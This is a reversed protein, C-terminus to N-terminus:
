KLRQLAEAATIGQVAIEKVPNTLGSIITVAKKKVGLIQALCATLCENAKGKEPPAQVRVKLMDQMEGAVVTRSSGPVVKVKFIIRNGDQSIRLAM